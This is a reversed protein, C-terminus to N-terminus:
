YNNNNPSNVSLMIGEDPLSSIIDNSENPSNNSSIDQNENNCVFIIKTETGINYEKTEKNNKLQLENQNDDNQSIIAKNLLTEVDSFDEVEYANINLNSCEIIKINKYKKKESKDEASSSYIKDTAIDKKWDYELTFKAKADDDDNNSQKSKKDDDDDDNEKVNENTISSPNKENEISNLLDDYYETFEKYFEYQHSLYKEFDRQKYMKQYDNEIHQESGKKESSAEADMLSISTLSPIVGTILLIILFISTFSSPTKRM